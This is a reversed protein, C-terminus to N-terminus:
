LIDNKKGIPVGLSIRAWDLWLSVGCCEYTTQLKNIVDLSDQRQAYRNMHDTMTDFMYGATSGSLALATILSALVLIGLIFSAIATLKGIIM